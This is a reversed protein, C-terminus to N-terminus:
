AAKKRKAYKRGTKRSTASSWDGDQASRLLNRTSVVDRDVEVDCRECYHMVGAGVECATGCDPCTQTTYAADVARTRDPGFAQRLLATLEGPAAHHGQRRAAQPLDNGDAAKIQAYNTTKVVVASYRVRLAAVWKRMADRRAAQTRRRCGEEYQWLHRDRHFWASQAETWQDRGLRALARAVGSPSKARACCADNEIMENALRQREARIRDARATLELWEPGLTLVSDNGAEDRAWALRLSGKVKRWSVDVAVLGGDGVPRETAGTVVLHVSAVERDAVRDLHVRVWAVRGEHPRHYEIDIPESWIPSRGESGVRIQVTHRQGARRGQRPDDARAMRWIRDADSVNSQIQVGAVLGSRRSRFRVTHLLSTTKCAQEFAQEILLYTGWHLGRGSYEARLPKVDLHGVERFRLRVDRWHAKCDDCKCDEHPPASPSEGQWASRRRANEAEVLANYYAHGLHMQERLKPGLSKARAGYKYVRTTM